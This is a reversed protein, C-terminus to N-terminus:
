KIAKQYNAIFYTNYETQKLEDSERNIIYYPKSKFKIYGYVPVKSATDPMESLILEGTLLPIEICQKPKDSKHLKYVPRTHGCAYLFEKNSKRQFNMWFFIPQLAMANYQDLTLRLSDMFYGYDANYKNIEGQTNLQAIVKHKITSDIHFSFDPTAESNCSTFFLYVVLSTLIIKSNM